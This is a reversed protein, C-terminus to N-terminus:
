HKESCNREDFTICISYYRTCVRANMMVDSNVNQAFEQSADLRANIDELDELNKRRMMDM